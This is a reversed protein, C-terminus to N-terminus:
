KIMPICITFKAGSLTESDSIEISGQHWDLVRKVIALGVGYGKHKVVGTNTKNLTSEGRIFPKLINEREAMPIGNGNDEVTFILTSNVSNTPHHAFTLSLLVQNSISQNTNRGGYNIANQM